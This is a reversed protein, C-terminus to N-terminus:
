SELLSARFNKVDFSPCAKAAFERHGHVDSISLGYYSLLWKVIEVLATKQANALVTSLALAVILIIRKM